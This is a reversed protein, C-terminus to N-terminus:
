IAREKQRVREKIDAKKGRKVRNRVCKAHSMLMRVVLMCVCVSPYLYMIKYLLM